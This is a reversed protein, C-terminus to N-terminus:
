LPVLFFLKLNRKLQPVLTEIIGLYWTSDNDNSFACSMFFAQKVNMAPHLAFSDRASKM